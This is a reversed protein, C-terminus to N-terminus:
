VPAKVFREVDDLVPALWRLPRSFAAALTVHNTREYWHLSVDTGRQRLRDALQQTNRQPNVLSDSPAAGLFCRIGQRDTYVIPQSDAPVNPHHFVPQVEPNVIPVFDYPGALGIWGALARLDIQEAALWRDDLALMAANYAGASHGMVFVRSPDGGYHTSERLTWALASAGDRLFDPYRVQPYLRYDAVVTLVGRSALAEGIFRYDSRSGRNWSGGYFFLAVPHGAAPPSPLPRYVDLRQRPDSGYPLDALLTHTDTPILVNLARAPACGALAAGTAALLATTLLRRRSRSPRAGGGAASGAKGDETM